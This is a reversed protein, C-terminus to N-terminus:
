NKKFRIKCNELTLKDCIFINNEGKFEITANKYEVDGIIKNM